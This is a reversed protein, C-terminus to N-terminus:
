KSIGTGPKRRASNSDGCSSSDAAPGLGRGSNARSKPYVHEQQARSWEWETMGDLVYAWAAIAGLGLTATGNRYSSVQYGANCNVDERWYRRVRGNDLMPRLSRLISRPLLETEAALETLTLGDTGRLAEIVASKTTGPKDVGRIWGRDLYGCRSCCVDRNGKPEGCQCRVSHNLPEKAPM